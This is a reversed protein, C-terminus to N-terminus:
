GTKHPWVFTAGPSPSLSKFCIAYQIVKVFYLLKGINLVHIDKYYSGDAECGGFLFIQENVVACTHNYRYFFCEDSNCSHLLLAQFRPFEVRLWIRVFFGSSFYVAGNEFSTASSFSGQKWHVMAVAQVYQVVVLYESLDFDKVRLVCFGSPQITYCFQM